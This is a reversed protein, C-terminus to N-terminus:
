GLRDARNNPTIWLIVEFKGRSEKAYQLTIQFKGIGDMGFLVFMKCARWAPDLIRRLVELASERSIWQDGSGPPINHYRISSVSEIARSKMALKATDRLVALPQKL